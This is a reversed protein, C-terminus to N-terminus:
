AESSKDTSDLRVQNTNIRGKNTNLQDQLLTDKNVLLALEDTHDAVIPELIDLRDDNVAIQGQLATDLTSISTQLRDDAIQLSLINADSISSDVGSSTPIGAIIGSSDITKFIGDQSYMKLGSCSPPAPTSTVENLTAEEFKGITDTSVGDFRRRKSSM